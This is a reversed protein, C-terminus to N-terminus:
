MRMQKYAERLIDLMQKYRVASNKDTPQNSYLYVVNDVVEINVEFPLAELKEMFAPHLLEFSTVGEATSAFVEYKKNFDGWEMSIKQLGRPKIFNTLHKRRVVINGYTKPVNTQAILYSGASGPVPDYTYLQLLYENYMGIIHNNIDSTGFRATNFIQGRSPILLWGYDLSYFFGNEAAFSELEFDKKWEAATAQDIGDLLWTTGWRKLRWYETFESGDQFILQGTLENIVKDDAQALLQVRVMDSDNNEQDDLDVIVSQKIWPEDVQNIRKAQMLAAVMLSTHQYYHPTMYAAMKQWARASWDAQFAKFIENTRALIAPEDWAPDLSAAKKLKATTKKSRKVKSFWNYLGAGMGALAGLAVLFGLSGFLLCTGAFIGCLVWGAIQAAPWFRTNALRKRLLMGIYHMPIYGIAAIAALVGGGGGGGSSSGGGGARAIFQLPELLQHLFM